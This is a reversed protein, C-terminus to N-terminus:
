GWRPADADCRSGLRTTGDLVVQLHREQIPLAWVALEAIGNGPAKAALAGLAKWTAVEAAEGMALFTWAALPGTGAKFWAGIKKVDAMSSGAIAAGFTGGFVLIMAPLLFIALPSSGEMLMMVVLSVLALVIGILSAPDM